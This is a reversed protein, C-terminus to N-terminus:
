TKLTALWADVQSAFLDPKEDHCNHAADPIELYRTPGGLNACVRAATSVPYVADYRGWVVLSPLVVARLVDEGPAHDPAQVGVATAAEWGGPADLHDLLRAVRETMRGDDRVLGAHRALSAVTARGVVSSFFRRGVGPFRRALRLGRPPRQGAVLPAVLVLGRFLAPHCAAAHLAVGGGLSHAVMVPRDLKLAGVLEPLLSAMWPLTYSAAAPRDSYGFGPLDVSVVRARRSLAPMVARWSATSSLYGHLLVLAIPGSGAEEV